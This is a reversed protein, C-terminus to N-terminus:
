GSKWAQVGLIDRARHPHTAVRKRKSGAHGMLPPQVTLGPLHDALSQTLPRLGSDRTHAQSQWKSGTPNHYTVLSRLAKTKQDAFPIHGGPGGQVVPTPGQSPRNTVALGSFAKVARHRSRRRQSATHYCSSGWSTSHPCLPDAHLVSLLVWPLSM